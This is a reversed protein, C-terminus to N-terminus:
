EITVKEKTVCLLFGVCFFVFSKGTERYIADFTLDRRTQFPEWSKDGVRKMLSSTGAPVHYEVPKPTPKASPYLCQDRLKSRQNESGTWSM